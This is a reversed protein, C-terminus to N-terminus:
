GNSNSVQNRNSILLTVDFFDCPLSLAYLGKKKHFAKNHGFVYGFVAGNSIIFVRKKIRM